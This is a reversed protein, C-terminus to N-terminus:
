NIMELLENKSVNLNKAVSKLINSLTGIRIPNHDPITVHHQIGEFDRTLRIHSGKQRTVTYGVKSLKTILTTASEDRSVKM